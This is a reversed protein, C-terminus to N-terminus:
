VNTNSSLNLSLYQYGHLVINSTCVYSDTGGANYVIVSLYVM